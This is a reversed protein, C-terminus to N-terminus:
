FKGGVELNNGPKIQSNKEIASPVYADVYTSHGDFNGKPM